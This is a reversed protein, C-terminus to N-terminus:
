YPYSKHISPQSALLRIAGDRLSRRPNELYGFAQELLIGEGQERYRTVLSTCLNWPDNVHISLQIFSKLFQDAKRLATWCAQAVPVSEDQLHLMLPVLSQMTFQKM